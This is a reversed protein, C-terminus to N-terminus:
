KNPAPRSPLHRHLSFRGGKLGHACSHTRLAPGRRLVQPHLWLIACDCQIDDYVTSCPPVPHAPSAGCAAPRTGYREGLFKGFASIASLMTQSRKAQRTRSDYKSATTDAATRVPYRGMMQLRTALLRRHHVLLWNHHLLLVWNRDSGRVSCRGIWCL